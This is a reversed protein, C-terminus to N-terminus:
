AGNGSRCVRLVESDAETGDLERGSALLTDFAAGIAPRVSDLAQDVQAQVDPARPSGIRERLADAAGILRLCSEAAGVAGALLAVDEYIIALAWQDDYARYTALAAAYASRAEDYEGLGRHANGLNNHGLGVMWTDGVERHLRMSEEFRTKVEAYNQQLVA